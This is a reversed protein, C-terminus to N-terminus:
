PSSITQYTDAPRFPKIEAKDLKVQVAQFGNQRAAPVKMHLILSGLTKRRSAVTDIKHLSAPVLLVQTVQVPLWMAVKAATGRADAEHQVGNGIIAVVRLHTPLPQKQFKSEPLDDAATLM